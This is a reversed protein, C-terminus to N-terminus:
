YFISTRIYQLSVIYQLQVLATVDSPVKVRTVCHCKLTISRDSLYVLLTPCDCKFIVDYLKNSFWVLDLVNDGVIAM